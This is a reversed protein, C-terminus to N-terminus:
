SVNNEKKESIFSMILLLIVGVTVATDAINFIPFYDYSRGLVNIDPIDVMIFDIVKGKFIGEYGFLVGYFVRDIMNGLAGGLIISLSIIDWKSKDRHKYIYYALYASVLITFISLLIKFAGVNIGFAIGPNEIYTIMFYHKFIPIQQGYQLNYKVLLKSIQDVIVIAFPIILLIYKSFIKKM